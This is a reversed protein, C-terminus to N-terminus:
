AYDELCEREQVNEWWLGVSAERRGGYMGYKGGMEKKKMQGGSNNLSSHKDRLEVTHLNRWDGTLEKRKPYVDEEAGHGQSIDSWTKV